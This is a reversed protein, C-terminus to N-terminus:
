ICLYAYIYGDYIHIYEYIYIYVCMYACTYINVYHEHLNLYGVFSLKTYKPSKDFNHRNIKCYNKCEM